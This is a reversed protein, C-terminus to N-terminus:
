NMRIIKIVEYYEPINKDTVSEGTSNITIVTSDVSLTHVHAGDSNIPNWNQYQTSIPDVNVIAATGGSTNKMKLTHTHAGNSLASGTHIHGQASHSHEPVVIDDNGGTTGPTIGGRIFKNILNPTSALGNCVYWGSLSITDGDEEGIEHTRNLINALASGAYSLITGIPLKPSIHENISDLLDVADNLVSEVEQVNEVVTEESDWNSLANRVGQMIPALNDLAMNIKHLIEVVRFNDESM